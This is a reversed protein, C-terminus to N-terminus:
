EQKIVQVPNKRSARFALCSITSLAILTTLMGAAIFIFLNITIRSPYNQLFRQVLLYALPCATANAIVILWSFERNILKILDSVSAGLIKRIGLEKTRKKIVLMTLGFLGSCAILIAFLAAYTIISSWRKEMSYLSALKADLFTYDFPIYPAVEKFEKKILDINTGISIGTIKIYIYRYLDQQNLKLLAPRIPDTLPQYYYDKVVGIIKGPFSQLFSDSLQYGLPEKINLKRILMENVIIGQTLDTPYEQSFNRGKLLEMNLTNIFDYDVLNKDLLIRHGKTIEPASSMWFDSLSYTAGSVSLISPYPLLNNKFQQFLIKSKQGDQTVNHFDVRIIGSTEYGVDSTRLYNYQKLFFLTLIAMLISITFQFVVLTKSLINKKSLKFKGGLLSIISFKSLILSPYFGALFGLAITLFILFVFPEFGNFFNISIEKNVLYNFPSTLLQALFIGILLSFACVLISEFMFQRNINNKSAGLVKKIGIEKLRHSASSISLNTYNVCAVLLILIAIASLIYTYIMRSKQTLVYTDRKAKLHFDSFPQLHYGSRKDTIDKFHKNITQPFKDALTDAEKRDSLLIFTPIFSGMEWSYLEEGYVSSIPIIFDFQISSNKPIKETVGSVIFDKFEENIKISVTKGMPNELHFLLTATKESLVVNNINKLVDRSNGMKQPFTFINFFSPDTAIGAMHHSQKHYYMVMRKKAIRVADAVEPFQKVMEPALPLHCDLGARANGLYLTSKVEFIKDINKHFRNFNFETQIFFFILICCAIGTALGSINIFSNMKHKKLNRIATIFHNKIMIISWHISLNLLSILTSITQNWYWWYGIIVGKENALEAYLEDMDGMISSKDESKLFLSMLKKALKPPKTKIIKM